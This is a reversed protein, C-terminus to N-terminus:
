CYTYKNIFIYTYMYKYVYIYIYIYICIDALFIKLTKREVSKKLGQEIKIPLEQKSEHNSYTSDDHNENNHADRIPTSVDKVVM